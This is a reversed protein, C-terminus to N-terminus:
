CKPRETETPVNWMSLLAYPVTSALPEGPWTPSESGGLSWPVMRLSTKWYWRWDRSLTGLETSQIGAHKARLPGLPRGLEGEEWKCSEERRRGQIVKRQGKPSQKTLREELLRWFGSKHERGGCLLCLSWRSPDSQPGHWTWARKM